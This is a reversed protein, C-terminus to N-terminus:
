PTEESKTTTPTGPPVTTSNSTSHPTPTVAESPLVDTLYMDVEHDIGVVPKQHVRLTLPGEKLLAEDHGWDFLAAGTTDRYPNLEIVCLEPEPEFKLFGLDVIYNPLDKTVPEVQATWYAILAELIRDHHAVLLPIYVYHNYQSIATLKGNYVFARFEMDAILKPEWKRVVVYQDWLEETEIAEMLDMFVRESNLIMEMAEKGSTCRLAEWRAKGIALMKANAVFLPNSRQEESLEAEREAIYRRLNEANVRGADKPSRASLRVFAGHPLGKIANNMNQEMEELLQLQQNSPAPESYFRHRYTQVIARGVDIRLPILETPFTLGSVRPYWSQVDFPIHGTRKKVKWDHYAKDSDAKEKAESHNVTSAGSFSLGM